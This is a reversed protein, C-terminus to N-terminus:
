LTIESEGSVKNIHCQDAKIVYLQNVVVIDSIEGIFRFNEQKDALEPQFNDSLIIYYDDEFGQDLPRITDGNSIRITFHDTLMDGNVTIGITRFEETCVIFGGTENCSYLGITIVTALLYLSNRFKLQM